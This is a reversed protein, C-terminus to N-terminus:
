TRQLLKEIIGKWATRDQSKRYWTLSQGVSQLDERILSSYTMVYEKWSKQSRGARGAGKWSAFLMIKPLRDDHMRALHGLWRLRRYSVIDQIYVTGCEALVDANRARDMLTKGCIKRFCRMQFM